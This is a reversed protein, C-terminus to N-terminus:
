CGTRSGPEFQARRHLSRVDIHLTSEQPSHVPLVRQVRGICQQIRSTTRARMCARQSNRCSTRSTDLLCRRRQAWLTSSARTMLPLKCFHKNPHSNIRPRQFPSCYEQHRTGLAVVVIPVWGPLDRDLLTLVVDESCPQVFHLAARRGHVM